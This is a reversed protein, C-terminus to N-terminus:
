FKIGQVEGLGNKYEIKVVEGVRPIRGLRNKLHAIAKVPSLSQVLYEGDEWITKGFYVGSETPFRTIAERSLIERVKQEVRTLGAYHKMNLALPNNALAKELAEEKYNAVRYQTLAANLTRVLLEEDCPKTLFRFIHGENVARVATMQDSNGTLMIRVTEPFDVRIRALLRAGDMEPMRMDCVVVAYPGKDRLKTLAEAGSVATEIRFQPDLLRQFGELVQREDDVFLIKEQM